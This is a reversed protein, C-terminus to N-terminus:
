IATPAKLLRLDRERIAERVAIPLCCIDKKLVYDAAGRQICEAAIENGGMGTVIILPIDARVQQLIELAQLASWAGTRFDALVVDIAHVAIRKRFETESSVVHASVKFGARNLECVARTADACNEELLLVSLLKYGILRSGRTSDPWARERSGVLSRLSAIKRLLKKMIQGVCFCSAAGRIGTENPLRSVITRM